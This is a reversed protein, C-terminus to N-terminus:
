ASVQQQWRAVLQTALGVPSNAEAGRQILLAPVIHDYCGEASQAFLRGGAQQFRQAPEVFDESAGSLLVVGSSGAPLASLVDAFRRSPAETFHMTGNGGREVSIATPVVYVHGALLVKGAEALEVPMQSARDMQRVLRDYQGGDLWQQVLVPVSFDSGLQQLIQRLPDPGGIGGVLLVAGEVALDSRPPSAVAATEAVEISEDDSEDGVLSLKAIRDNLGALGEHSGTTTAESVPMPEDTLSWSPAEPPAAVETKAPELEFESEAGEVVPREFDQWRDSPTQVEFQAMEEEIREYAQEAPLDSEDLPALAARFDTDAAQPANAAPLENVAEFDQFRTWDLAADTAPEPLAVDSVQNDPQDAPEEDVPMAQLNADISELASELLEAESTVEDPEHGEPLVDGHGLLKAGLHRSWRAVDWGDRAGVLAVEEFLIRYNDDALIPDFRELADEVEADVAIVLNRAGAGRIEEIGTELPDAELVVDVGAQQLGARLRERAEGPRALLITRRPDAM